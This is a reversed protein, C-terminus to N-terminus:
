FGSSRTSTCFTRCEAVNPVKAFSTSRIRPISNMDAVCPQLSREHHEQDQRLFRLGHSTSAVMVRDRDAKDQRTSVHGVKSCDVTELLERLGDQDWVIEM